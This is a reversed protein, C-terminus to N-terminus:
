PYSLTSDPNKSKLSTKEKTTIMKWDSRDDEDTFIRSIQRLSKIKWDTWRRQAEITTLDDRYDRTYFGQAAHRSKTTAM